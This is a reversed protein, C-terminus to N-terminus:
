RCLALSRSWVFPLAFRNLRVTRPSSAQLSSKVELFRLGSLRGRAM